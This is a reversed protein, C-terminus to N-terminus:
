KLIFVWCKNEELIQFCFRFIEIREIRLDHKQLGYKEGFKGPIPSKQIVDDIPRKM